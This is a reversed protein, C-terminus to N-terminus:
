RREQEGEDGAQEKEVNIFGSFLGDVDSQIKALLDGAGCAEFEGRRDDFIEALGEYNLRMVQGITLALYNVLPNEDADLISRALEVSDPTPNPV